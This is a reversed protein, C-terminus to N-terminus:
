GKDYFDEGDLVTFATLERNSSYDALLAEAAVALQQKRTDPEPAQEDRQLDDRILRVASEIITLRDSLSLKKLEDLMELRTM